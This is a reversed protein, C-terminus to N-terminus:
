HTSSLAVVSRSGEEIFPELTGVEEDVFMADDSVPRIRDRDRQYRHGLSERSEDHRRAARSEGRAVQCWLAGQL